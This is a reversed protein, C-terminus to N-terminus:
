DRAALEAVLATSRSLSPLEPAIDIDMLQELETAAARGAQADTLSHRRLEAAVAGLSNQYLAADRIYIALRAQEM